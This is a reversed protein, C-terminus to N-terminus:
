PFSTLFAFHSIARVVERERERVCVCVCACVNIERGSEKRIREEHERKEVGKEIAVGEKTKGEKYTNM